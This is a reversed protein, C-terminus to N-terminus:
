WASWRPADVAIEDADALAFRMSSAMFLEAAGKKWV